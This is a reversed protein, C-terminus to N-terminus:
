FKKEFLWWHYDMFQPFEREWLFGYDVTKLIPFHDLYFAGFDRKFFVNRRGRYTKEEPEHAFFEICLVYRKSVRIIEKTIDLLKQPPIHILVGSTFVLDISGDDFPLRYGDCNHAKTLKLKPNKILKAFATKNPEVAYLKVSPDLLKRLINLQIGINSGVELISKPKINDFIQRYAKVGNEIKEPTIKNRRWYQNGFKGTWFKLQSSTKVM